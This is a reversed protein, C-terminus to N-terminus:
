VLWVVVLCFGSDHFFLDSDCEDDGGEEGGKCEGKRTLDPVNDETAKQTERCLLHDAWLKYSLSELRPGVVAGVFHTKVIPIM